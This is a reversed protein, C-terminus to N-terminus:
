HFLQGRGMMGADVRRAEVCCTERAAPGNVETRAWVMSGRATDPESDEGARQQICRMCTVELM